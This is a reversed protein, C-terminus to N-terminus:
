LGALEAYDITEEGFQWSIEDRKEEAMQMAENASDADVEITGNFIKTCTVIYKAM